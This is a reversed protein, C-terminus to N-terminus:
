CSASCNRTALLSIFVGSLTLCCFPVTSVRKQTSQQVQQQHRAVQRQYNSFKGADGGVDDIASMLLRVNKELEVSCSAVFCNRLVRFVHGTPRNNPQDNLGGDTWRCMDIHAAVQEGQAWASSTRQSLNPTKEIWNVCCSTSWTLTTSESQYKKWCAVTLSTWNTWAIFLDHKM